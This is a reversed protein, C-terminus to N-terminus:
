VWSIHNAPDLPNNEENVSDKAAISYDPAASVEDFNDVM